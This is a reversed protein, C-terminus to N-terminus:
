IFLTRTWASANLLIESIALKLLDQSSKSKLWRLSNLANEIATLRMQLSSILYWRGSSTLRRLLFFGVPYIRTIPMTLLIKELDLAKDMDFPAEDYLPQLYIAAAAAINEQLFKTEAIRRRLQIAQGLTLAGPRSPVELIKNDIKIIKQLGVGKFGEPDSFFFDICANMRIEIDPDTSNNIFEYDQDTLISFLGVPDKPQEKVIRQYKAVSCEPWSNIAHFKKGNNTYTIM